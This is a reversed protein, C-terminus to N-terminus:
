PHVHDAEQADTKAAPQVPREGLYARHPIAPRDANQGVRGIEGEAFASLAAVNLLRLRRGAREVYGLRVLRGLETTFTQRATGLMSAMTEHTLAPALDVPAGPVAAARSALEVLLSAVRQVVTRGALREVQAQSRMSREAILHLAEIAVEPRGRMLEIFDDGRLRCVHAPELSQAFTRRPRGALVEDGFVDGPELLALTLERGDGTVRYLRVRGRKLLYVHEGPEEAMYILCHRPYDMTVTIRDVWRRLDEDNLSRFLRNLKLYWLKPPEAGAREGASTTSGM